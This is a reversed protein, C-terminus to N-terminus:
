YNVAEPFSTTIDISTGPTEVTSLLVFLDFCLLRGTFWDCDLLELAKVSSEM